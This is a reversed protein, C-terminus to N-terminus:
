NYELKYYRELIIFFVSWNQQIKLNKIYNIKLKQREITVINLEKPNIVYRSLLMTM